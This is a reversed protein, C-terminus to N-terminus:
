AGAIGSTRCPKSAPTATRSRPSSPPSLSAQPSCCINQCGRLRFRSLNFTAHSLDVAINQQESERRQQHNEKEVALQEVRQDFGDVIESAARRSCHMGRRRIVA